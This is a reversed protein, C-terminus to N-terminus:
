KHPFKLQRKNSLDLYKSIVTGTSNNKYSFNFLYILLLCKSQLYQIRRGSSYNIIKDNGLFMSLVSAGVEM